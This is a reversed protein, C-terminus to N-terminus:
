LSELRDIFAPIALGVAVTVLAVALPDPQDLEASRCAAAGAARGLQHAVVNAGVVLLMATAVRGDLKM